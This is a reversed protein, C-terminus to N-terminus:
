GNEEQIASLADAFNYTIAQWNRRQREALAAISLSLDVGPGARYLLGVPEALVEAPLDGTSGDWVWTKLQNHLHFVFALPGLQNKQDFKLRLWDHFEETTVLGANVLTDAKMERLAGVHGTMSIKYITKGDAGLLTAVTPRHLVYPTPSRLTNQAVLWRFGKVIDKTGGQAIATELVVVIYNTPIWEHKGSDVGRFRGSVYERTAPSDNWTSRLMDWTLGRFSRRAVMARLFTTIGGADAIATRVLPNVNDGPLNQFRGWRGDEVVYAITGIQTHLAANDVASVKAQGSSVLSAATEGGMQELFQRAVTHPSTRWDTEFVHDRFTGSSASRPQSQSGELFWPLLQQRIPAQRMLAIAGDDRIASRGWIPEEGPPALRPRTISPLWRKSMQQSFARAHVPLQTQMDLLYDEPSRRGGFTEWLIKLRAALAEERDELLQNRSRLEAAPAVDATGAAAAGKEKAFDAALQDGLQDTDDALHTLADLDATAGERKEPALDRVRARWAAIKQALPEPTSALMLEGAEGRAQFWLRHSQGDARFRVTTGLEDDHETGAESGPPGTGIGVRALLARGRDALFGVVQDMAVYVTGQLRVIVGAVEDPLGGLHCLGALFDIVPPILQALAREVADALAGINGAIVDALGNVVTEVFSFIRAANRFVWACVQYILEIAQAIAGVPNLLGAVRVLAQEILTETLYDIAADLIADVLSEPALQEKVLEVIGDPGRQILVTVLQWAAEILEVATPGLHRVLIERVRPWTIGMLELAFSFLATPTFERPMPIPANLGSFLWTWFGELVHRGFHDFFQSFGQKLGAVLNNIFREPDDAIDSIVQAIKAVLAWFASPPIGVLRLLGNIIARVPDDIFEAIAAAVRGILGAAAERLAQVEAHVQNVAQIARDSIDTVFGTQADTAQSSLTDLMGSFRARETAAWEPFKEAMATFADDINKRAQRIIAQVTAVVGNVFTSIELLLDCVGDGFAREAANYDRTVWGPLGTFYDGVSLLAGGVGSHREDVWHKTEDVSARFAASLADLGSNWRAIADPNLPRLLSAVQRAASDYIGQAHAAVGARTDEEHTTMKGQAGGVGHVTGARAARLAALAQVQLAAMDTQSTAIAQTQTAQIQAPTTAAAEGLQARADRTEAFPGDPIAQTVPTDIGSGAIRQDTAALDADLTTDSAPIPDPAADSAPVGLGPVATGPAQVATPHLAPTGAPPTAMANFSNSVATSQAQVSGTITDGANRAEKTPDTALLQDEDEPRNERIATRIRECLAVIEPSPAPAAGLEAALEEQARAATEAPPETVAARSDAVDAAADPLTRASRSSHRAAATVAAGRASAAPGLGTPPPPMLLEVPPPAPEGATGAATDPAAAAAPRTAADAAETKQGAATSGAPASGAAAAAAAPAQAAGAAAGGDPGPAATTGGGALEAPITAPITTTDASPAGAAVPAVPAPAQPAQPAMAVAGAIGELAAHVARDLVRLMGPSDVGYVGPALFLEHDTVFAPVGAVPTEPHIRLASTDIGLGRYTEALRPSLPIGPEGLTSPLDVIAHEGRHEATGGSTTSVATGPPLGTLDVDLATGRRVVHPTAVPHSPEWGEIQWSAGGLVQGALTLTARVTLTGDPTGDTRLGAHGTVETFPTRGSLLLTGGDPRWDAHLADLGGATTGPGLVTRGSRDAPHPIRHPLEAHPATPPPVRHASGTGRRADPERSATATPETATTTAISM